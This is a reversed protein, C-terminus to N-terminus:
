VGSDLACVTGRMVAKRLLTRAHVAQSLRLSQSGCAVDLRCVLRDPTHLTPSTPSTYLESSVLRLGHLWLLLCALAPAAHSSTLPPLPSSFPRFRRRRFAMATLSRTRHSLCLLPAYMTLRHLRSLPPLRGRPRSARTIVPPRAGGPPIPALAASSWVAIM